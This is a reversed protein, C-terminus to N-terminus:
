SLKTRGRTRRMSPAITLFIPSHDSAPAVLNDLSSNPFLHFWAENPLARDLREEVAKDTGLRKFWTFPYGELSIDILGADQIAKRFGNILWPARVM